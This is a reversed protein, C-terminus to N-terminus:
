WRLERPSLKQPNREISAIQGDALHLVRDAM